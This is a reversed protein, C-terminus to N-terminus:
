NPVAAKVSRNKEKKRKVIFAKFRQGKKELLGHSKGIAVVSFGL